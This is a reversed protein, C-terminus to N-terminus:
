NSTNADTDLLWGGFVISGTSSRVEFKSANRFANGNFTFADGNEVTVGGNFTALGSFTAPAAFTSTANVTLTDGAADGLTTNGTTSVNNNFTVPSQFTSTANVTLTDGAADGLTTNGTTVLPGDLTTSQGAPTNFGQSFTAPQAFTAAGNITIADTAADGLTVNGHLTAAGSVDLTTLLSGVETVTTSNASYSYLRGTTTNVALEGPVLQSATPVGLPGAVNSRKILITQAM